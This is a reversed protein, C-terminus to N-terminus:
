AGWRRVTGTDIHVFDSKPYYGVGGRRLELASDRVSRTRMNSIRIDLAQGNMHLSRKAVRRSTKRLMANTKPCRYASVIEFVGDPDGLRHKIDYLFDFLKPDMVAVDDTRFDRLFHNLDHLASRQYRDGIRYTVKIKEDTHLHHLSLFRPENNQKKALAPTVASSLAFGLFQRRNM